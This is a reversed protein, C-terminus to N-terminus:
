WGGTELWRDVMDLRDCGWFAEGDVVFFPSGFIERSIADDTVIKLQEKIAPDQIGEAVAAADFGAKGAAEAV